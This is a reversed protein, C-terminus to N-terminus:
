TWSRSFSRAQQGPRALYALHAPARQVGGERADRDTSASCAAPTSWCPRAKQGAHSAWEGKKPNRLDLGTLKLGFWAFLCNLDERVCVNVRAEEGDERGEGM